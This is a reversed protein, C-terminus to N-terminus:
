VGATGTLRGPVVVKSGMWVDREAPDSQADTTSSSVSRSRNHIRASRTKGANALYRSSAALTCRVIGITWSVRRFGPHRRHFNGERGPAVHEAHWSFLTGHFVSAPHPHRVTSRRLATDRASVPTGRHRDHADRQQSRRRARAALALARAVAGLRATVVVVCGRGAPGVASM